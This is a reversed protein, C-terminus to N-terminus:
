LNCCYAEPQGIPDPQTCVGPGLAPGGPTACEYAVSTPNLAHCVDLISGATVIDCTGPCTTGNTYPFYQCHNGNPGITDNCRVQYCPPPAPCDTTKECMPEGCQGLGNCAASTRGNTSRGNTCPTGTPKNIWLCQDLPSCAAALCQATAPPQPCALCPDTIPLRQADLDMIDASPQTDSSALQCGTIAFVITAALAIIHRTNM